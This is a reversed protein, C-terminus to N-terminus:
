PTSAYKPAGVIAWTQFLEALVTADGDAAIRHREAAPLNNTLLQWAQETTM